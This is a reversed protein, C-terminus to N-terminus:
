RIEINQFAAMDYAYLDKSTKTKNDSPGRAQHGEPSYIICNSM